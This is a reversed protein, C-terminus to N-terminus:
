LHHFQHTAQILILLLHNQLFIQLNKLLFILQDLINTENIKIKGDLFSINNAVAPGLSNLNFILILAYILVKM